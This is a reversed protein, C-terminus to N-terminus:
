PYLLVSNARFAFGRRRPMWDKVKKLPFMNFVYITLLRNCRKQRYDALTSKEIRRYIQQEFNDQDVRLRKRTHIHPKLCVLPVDFM